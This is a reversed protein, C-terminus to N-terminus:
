RAMTSAQQWAQFSKTASGVRTLRAWHHSSGCLEIAVLTPPLKELYRVMEARRFQRRVVVVENQDVGHLQFVSKSTDMGIRVPTESAEGRMQGSASADNPRHSALSDVGACPIAGSRAAASRCTRRNIPRFSPATPWSSSPFSAVFAQAHEVMRFYWATAHTLGAGAGHTADSGRGVDADLWWHMDLRLNELDREPVLIKVRVPFAHDDTRKQPPSRRDM